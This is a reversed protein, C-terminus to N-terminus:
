PLWDIIADGTEQMAREGILLGAHGYDDAYGNARSLLRYTKQEGGIMKVLERSDRYDIFRDEGGCIILSPCTIQSLDTLYDRRGDYSAFTGHKLWDAVQRAVGISVPELARRYYKDVTDRELTSGNCLWADFLSQRTGIFPAPARSGLSTPVEELWNLRNLKALLAQHFENQHKIRAAAGLCILGAVKEPHREAYALAAMGGIGHGALIVQDSNKKRCIADVIAPLDQEVYEDFTWDARRDNWWAPKESLGQGRLEAVTVSYGAAALARALSHDDDLDFAFGNEYVDPILVLPEGSEAVGSSSYDHLALQWEDATQTNFIESTRADPASPSLSLCGSLGAVVIIIVLVHSPRPM